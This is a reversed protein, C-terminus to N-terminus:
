LEPPLFPQRFERHRDLLLRSGRARGEPAHLRASPPVVQHRVARDRASLFFRLPAGDRQRAARAHSHACGRRATAALQLASIFQEDPVFYPSAIWLRERRPTSRTSSSLAHCNGARGGSREASLACRSQRESAALPIALQSGGAEEDPPGSGIRPGLFRCANYWPAKSACMRTAGRASRKSRPRSIRRRCQARRCVRRTWRRDRNEPPQSLQAPLRNAIGKTTHFPEIKVGGARLTTATAAEPQGSGIEDYLVCAACEKARRPSSRTACATRRARRQSHHLVARPHIKERVAIAEFIAHSHPRTWRRAPDRQNHATFPLKALRELLLEESRGAKTQMRQRDFEAALKRALANTKLMEERRATVYGAFKTRGFVWYAPVAVYPLAILSVAWAIAGQATRTEMIAKLATLFGALECLAVLITTFM